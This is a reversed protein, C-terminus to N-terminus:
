TRREHPNALQSFNLGPWARTSPKLCSPQTQRKMSYKILGVSRKPSVSSCILRPRWFKGETDRRLYRRRLVTLANESLRFGKSTFDKQCPEYSRIFLLLIFHKRTLFIFSIGYTTHHPSKVVLIYLIDIFLQFYETQTLFEQCLQGTM